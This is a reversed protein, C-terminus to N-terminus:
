GSSVPHRQIVPPGWMAVTAGCLRTVQRPVNPERSIHCNESCKLSATPTAFETLVAFM